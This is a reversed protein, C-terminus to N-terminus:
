QYPNQALYVEAQGSREKGDPTVHCATSDLHTGRGQEAGRGQRGRREPEAVPQDHRQVQLRVVLLRAAIQVRGSRLDPRTRLRDRRAPPISRRVVDGAPRIKGEIACRSLTTKNLM